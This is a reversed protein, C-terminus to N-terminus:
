YILANSFIAQLSADMMAETYSYMLPSLYIFVGWILQIVHHRGYTLMITAPTGPVGILVLVDVGVIRDPSGSAQWADHTTDYMMHRIMCWTNYWVAILMICLIWKPNIPFKVFLLIDKWWTLNGPILRDAETLMIIVSLGLGFLRWGMLLWGVSKVTVVNIRLM